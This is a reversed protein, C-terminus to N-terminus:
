RVPQNLRSRSEIRGNSTRAAGGAVMRAAAAAAAAVSREEV